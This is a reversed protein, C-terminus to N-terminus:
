ICQQEKYAINAIRYSSIKKVDMHRITYRIRGASGSFMREPPSYRSTMHGYGPTESERSYPNGLIIKLGIKIIIM